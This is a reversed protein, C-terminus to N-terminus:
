VYKRVKPRLAEEVMQWEITCRQKLQKGIEELKSYDASNRAKKIEELHEDKVKKDFASIAFLWEVISTLDDVGYGFLISFAAERFPLGLKNKKIRAKIGVGLVRELTKAGSNIKGTESLWAIQSAYFDLAKGGSRTYQEGFTVGINERVQSVVGLTAGNLNLRRFLESLKKAKEMAFTSKTDISREQEARDSLADLSDLIYIAPGGKKCFETLDTFWDEVTELPVKPREINDPFGLTRAFEEDFADESEAYRMRGQPFARTFNALAEICLLTKGTSRDGVLNFMRGCGWGGGLALDLLTSGSSFFGGSFLQTPPPVQIQTREM